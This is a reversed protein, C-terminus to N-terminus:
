RTHVIAGLLIAARDNFRKLSGLRHHLSERYCCGQKRSFCLAQRRQGPAAARL